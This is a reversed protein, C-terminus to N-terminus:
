LATWILNAFVPGITVPLRTIKLIKGKESEDADPDSDSDSDSFRGWRKRPEFLVLLTYRAFLTV